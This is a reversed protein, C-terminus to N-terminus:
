RKTAMDKEKSGIGWKEFLATAYSNADKGDFDDILAVVIQAGTKKYLEKNTNIIHKSVDESIVNNKDYIYFVNTYKPLDAFAVSSFSMLLILLVLFSIGKKM